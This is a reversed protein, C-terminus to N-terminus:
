YSEKLTEKWEKKCHRFQIGRKMGNSEWVGALSFVAGLHSALQADGASWKL